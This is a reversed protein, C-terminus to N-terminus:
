ENYDYCKRNKMNQFISYIEERDFVKGVQPGKTGNCYEIQNNKVKFMELCEFCNKPILFTEYFKAEEELSIDTIKIPRTIRFLIKNERLKFLFNKFASSDRSGLRESVIPSLLFLTIKKKNKKSLSVIEKLLIRFNHRAPNFSIFPNGKINQGDSKNLEFENFQMSYFLKKNRETLCPKIKIVREQALNKLLEYTEKKTEICSKKDPITIDKNKRINRLPCGGWCLKFDCDSCKVKKYVNRLERIKRENMEFLRKEHNFKGILLDGMGKYTNLDSEDAYAPCTSVNGNVGVCFLRGLTCYPTEKRGLSREIILNAKLGLFNCLEKIKLESRASSIVFSDWSRKKLTKKLYSDGAGLPRVSALVIEKIGLDYFYKCLYEEKGKHLDTVITKIAFKKNKKVLEKITKEVMLSSKRGNKLPRQEDQIEPPGDFSIQFTNFSDIIELYREPKGTGNVSVMISKIKIKKKVYNLTKKFLRFDSTQEGPSAFIVFVPKNQRKIYDIASKLVIWTSSAGEREGGGGFCYSCALNCRSTIVLSLTRFYPLLKRFPLRRNKALFYKGFLDFCEKDMLFFSESISCFAIIRERKNSILHLFPKRQFNKQINKRGAILNREGQRNVIILKM